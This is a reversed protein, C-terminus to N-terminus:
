PLCGCSNFIRVMGFCVQEASANGPRGHECSAESLETTTDLLASHATPAPQVSGIHADVTLQQSVGLFGQDSASSQQAAVCVKSCKGQDDYEALHYQSSQSLIVHSEVIHEPRKRKRAYEGDMKAPSNTM